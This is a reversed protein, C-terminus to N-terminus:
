GLSFLENVTKGFYASLKLALETSPIFKGNEIAYITQRSVGVAEVKERSFGVLFLGAVLFVTGLIAPLSELYPTKSLLLACAVCVAAISAVIWGVLQFGHPFIGPFTPRALEPL